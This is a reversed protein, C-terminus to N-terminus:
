FIIIPIAYISSVIPEFVRAGYRTLSILFGLLGGVGLAIPGAIVFEFLTVKLDPWAQGSGVIRVFNRLVDEPKPLFFPSVIETVTVVHWPAVLLVLVALKVLASARKQARTLRATLAQGAAAAGSM